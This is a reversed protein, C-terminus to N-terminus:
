TELESLACASYRRVYSDDAHLVGAEIVVPPPFCASYFFSPHLVVFSLTAILTGPLVADWRQM